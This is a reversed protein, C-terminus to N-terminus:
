SQQLAAAPDLRTARVAPALCAVLGTGLLTAMVGGFVLPDRAQVDFLVVRLLQAVGLAVTLGILLGATTQGLGQRLVLGVVSRRQAGLAMRIAMERTRRSVSFALVAYLGVAALVLAAVGFVMFMTGFVRVFWLAGSISAALTTANFMPLDPDVDAAAERVQPALDLPPASGATRAALFVANSPAQSLPRFVVPPYPDEPDGGFIDPLVGVVTLWPSAARPSGLRIRRGIADGTPLFRQVFRQTVMAVPLSRPGDADTFRRGRAVDLELTSFFGPTVALLDTFPRTEDRYTAGEVTLLDGDLQAGPLGSTVGAALVGPLARVRGVLQGFAALHRATDASADPFAVNATFVNRTAYGYRVTGLKTVSEIMLGAAVLLTASLAIEFIVLGRSLAGIRLSSAGRSEDKLVDSLDVRSSKLAPLVGSAVTAFAGAGAAAALVPLYMGIRVYSPLSAGATARHFLGIGTAAFVVGLGTGGAALVLAEMLRERMAAIRSAGLAARIGLERIRSVARSLLLNMVNACAILFVCFTAGLMTLLLRRPQPGVSWDAFTGAAGTYGGDSDPHALALRDLIAAADAAAARRTVGPRLKGITIVSPTEAGPGAAAELDVKLPLWLQDSAPFAFGRPMVGIVTCPAGDVRVQRGVIAPDAAYRDRWLRDSLIAVLAGGPAADGAGFERGLVPAVGLAPLVGPTIRTASVRQAHETGSLNAAGPTYGGLADFSRGADRVAVFERPTLAQRRIGRTPSNRYVVAIRDAGQYPLGRVLVGYVVSVMTTTLGIGLGLALIAVFTVGPTRRLSRVAYRLERGFGPM